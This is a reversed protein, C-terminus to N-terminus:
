KSTAAKELLVPNLFLCKVQKFISDLSKEALVEEFTNAGILEFLLFVEVGEKKCQKIIYVIFDDELVDGSHEVRINQQLIEGKENICCVALNRIVREYL